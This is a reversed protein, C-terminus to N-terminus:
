DEGELITSNIENKFRILIDEKNFDKLYLEKSKNRLQNQLMENNLLENLKESIKSIDTICYAADRLVIMSSISAPGIALIPKNLSLYESIKTSLSLRTSEIAELDFSEVFVPITCSNLIQILQGKDVLGCFKSYRGSLSDIITTDVNPNSYIYLKAKKTSDENFREISDKLSILTEYRKSHLGGAYVLSIEKDSFIKKSVDQFFDQANNLVIGQKDFIKTYSDRMSKSIVFFKDSSSIINAMKKRIIRRRLSGMLSDSLRPLIYDDTIYIMLKTNWKKQIYLAIRYSFISDGACLFVLNPHFDNIWTDLKKNKWPGIKWILERIIRLLDSIKKASLEKKHEQQNERLFSDSKLIHTGKKFLLIDKDTLKYYNHFKVFTPVEDKFFLQSVQDEDFSSFFSLMTKGNSSTESFSNNSIVLIRQRDKM